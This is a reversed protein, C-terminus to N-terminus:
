VAICILRIMSLSQGSLRGAQRPEDPGFGLYKAFRMNHLGDWLYGELHFRDIKIHLMHYLSIPACLRLKSGLLEQGFSESRFARPWLSKVWSDQPRHFHTKMSNEYFWSRDYFLDSFYVNELPFAACSLLQVMLRPTVRSNYDRM